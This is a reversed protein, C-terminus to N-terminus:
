FMKEFVNKDFDDQFSINLPLKVLVTMISIENKMNGRVWDWKWEGDEIGHENREERARM